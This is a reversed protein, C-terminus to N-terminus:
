ACVSGSYESFYSCRESTELVPDILIAQNTKKDAILYSYTSSEKEFLQRFVLENNATHMGLSTSMARSIRTPVNSLLKYAHMRQIFIFLALFFFVSVGLKKM